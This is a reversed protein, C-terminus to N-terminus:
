TKKGRRGAPEAGFLRLALGATLSLHWKAFSPGARHSLLPVLAPNGIVGRTRAIEILALEPTVGADERKPREANGRDDRAVERAPIQAEGDAAPAAHEDA